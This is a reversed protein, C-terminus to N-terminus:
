LALTTDKKEFGVPVKLVDADYMNIYLIIPKDLGEYTVEYMDLFGGGDIGHKTAFFCCSGLRQYTIQEKNPGTIANLFRRENLPGESKSVGGVMIPKAQTYGYEQDDSHIDIKFTYPDVLETKKNPSGYNFDAKAAVMRRELNCSTMCFVLGIFLLKTKM